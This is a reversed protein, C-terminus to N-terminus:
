GRIRGEDRYAQANAALMVARAELAEGAHLRCLSEGGLVVIAPAVNSERPVEGPAPVRGNEVCCRACALTM